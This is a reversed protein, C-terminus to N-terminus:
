RCLRQTGRDLHLHDAHAANYEPGLVVDFWRCAGEHLDRLFLAEPGQKRWDRAVTIRQGGYLVFGAVDFADATAHRSRSGSERGYLNRCSYSGFHELRDLPRGLHRLAAPMVVHHEWLALSVAAPCSLTFPESIRLRMRDVRVANRFGCGEATQRDPVAQLQWSVQGLVQRCLDPHHSLRMLKWRTLWGPAEVISLPAWPDYRDPVRWQGSHWLAAASAIALIAVAFLAKSLATM